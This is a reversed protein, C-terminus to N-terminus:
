DLFERSLFFRKKIFGALTILIVIAPLTLVLPRLVRLSLDNELFINLIFTMLSPAYNQSGLEIEAPTLLLTLVIPFTYFYLSHNLKGILHSVYLSSLIYIIWFM